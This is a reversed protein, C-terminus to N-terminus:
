HIKRRCVPFRGKVLQHTKINHIFFRVPRKNSNYYNNKRKIETRSIKNDKVQYNYGDRGSNTMYMFSYKPPDVDIFLSPIYIAGAIFLVMAVPISLGIILTINEKKM